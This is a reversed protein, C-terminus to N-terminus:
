LDSPSYRLLRLGILAVLVTSGEHGVVALPLPLDVALVAAIMLGIAGFAITFNIWLTRKTKKSLSLIYPLRSLDDSMLVVDATELAVDTGAGGMGVSIDATALAPADNVGDGVMAVANHRKQLAEIQAVKEEPLLESYVTDINLEDAIAQAVRDNDGTLMIIERIGSERLQQVTQAAEPRITDTFALWGLVTFKDESEAAVIVSTKGNKEQRRIAEIGQEIYEVKSNIESEFYRQNGIHIPTGDVQANVGKGVVANFNTVDPTSISQNDAAEVTAEGLHHESRSQVAAALRLLQQDNVPMSGLKAGDRATYENLVTNGETLTGTKDFAIADVNAALEVHDGGKFLVGQRAGATIASLVAAPTSIIVACPSAAVMLTVARYITSDLPHSLLWYPIAVALITMLFVGLVYPQELRDVLRQTPAQKRQAEQVMDILRSLTSEAAERTVQIELSGTKNITGSYVEDGPTKTVPESEGTISSEDISSQGDIVEGDLPLREGPRVIIVDDIEVNEIPQQEEEGNVLVQATDPRMEALSSIAAKSRGFAYEELVNSLSFLFLLLAGEFPAGIVLAAVAAIIMLLDIEIAPEQLSEIAEKVGYWGGSIYAIAYSTWYLTTPGDFWGILLGAFTGLFTLVVSIVQLRLYGQSLSSDSGIDSETQMSASSAEVM